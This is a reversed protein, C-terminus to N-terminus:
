DLKSRDDKSMHVFAKCRFVRLHDYSIDKGYWVRDPVDAPLAVIHSLNIVHAITYLADGWFSKLLKVESLLCRVREM